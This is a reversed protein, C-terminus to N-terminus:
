KTYSRSCKVLDGLVLLGFLDPQCLGAALSLSFRDPKVIYIMTEYFQINNVEYVDDFIHANKM